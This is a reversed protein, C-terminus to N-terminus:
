VSSTESTVKSSLPTKTCEKVGEEVSDQTKCCHSCVSFSFIENSDPIGSSM